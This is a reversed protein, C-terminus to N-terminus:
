KELSIMRIFEERTKMDLFKGSYEATVTSSSVDQVGRMAVCMHDAEIIVAVDNTHLAEKLMNVIQVTM